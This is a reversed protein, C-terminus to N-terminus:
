LIKMMDIANDERIMSLKVYNNSFTGMLFEEGLIRKGTPSYIYPYIVLEINKVFYKGSPTINNEWNVKNILKSVKKYNSKENFFYICGNERFVYYSRSKKSLIIRKKEGTLTRSYTNSNIEFTCYSANFTTDSKRITIKNQPFYQHTISLLVIFPLLIRM